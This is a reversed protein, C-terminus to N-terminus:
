YEVYVHLRACPKIEGVPILSPEGKLLNQKALGVKVIVMHRNKILVSVGNVVWYIDQQSFLHQRNSLKLGNYGGNGKEHSLENMRVDHTGNCDDEWGHASLGRLELLLNFHSCGGHFVNLKLRLDLLLDLVEEHGFLALELILFIKIIEKWEKGRTESEQHRLM